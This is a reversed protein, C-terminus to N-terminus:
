FIIVSIIPCDIPSFSANLTYFRLADVTRLINDHNEMGVVVSSNGRGGIVAAYFADPLSSTFNITYDGTGNDTISSVNFQSKITPTGTGDFMVFAKYSNAPISTGSITVITTDDISSDEVAVGSGVFKLYARQPYTTSSDEIIHGAIGSVVIGSIAAADVYAKVAHETPYLVSSDGSLTVDNTKNAVDEPTFALGSVAVDTSNNGPNDVITIGGLFRLGSRQTYSTSLDEIIHGGGTGSELAQLRYRIHCLNDYLSTGADPIGSSAVEATDYAVRKQPLQGVFGGPPGGGGGSTTPVGGLVLPSAKWARSAANIMDIIMLSYDQPM